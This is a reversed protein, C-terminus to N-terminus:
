RVMVFNHLDGPGDIAVMEWRGNTWVFLRGRLGFREDYRLMLGVDASLRKWDSSTTDPLTGNLVSMSDIRALLNGPPYVRITPAGPSSQILRISSSGPGSHPVAHGVPRGALLAITVLILASVATRVM